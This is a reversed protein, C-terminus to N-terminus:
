KISRFLMLGAFIGLILVAIGLILDFRRNEEVAEAIEEYSVIIKGDVSMQWVWNNKGYDSWLIVNKGPQAKQPLKEMDPFWDLYSFQLYSFLQNPEKLRVLYYKSSTYKSRRIKEEYSVSGSFKELEELNPVGELYRSIFLYSASICGIFIVILRIKKM